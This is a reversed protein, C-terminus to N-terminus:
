SSQLIRNSGSTAQGENAAHLIFYLLLSCGSWVPPLCSHQHSLQVYLHCPLLNEGTCAVEPEIEYIGLLPFSTNTDALLVGETLVRRGVAQCRIEMIKSGSVDLTGSVRLGFLFLVFRRGEPRIQAGQHALPLQVPIKCKKARIQETKYWQGEGSPKNSMQVKKGDCTIKYKKEVDGNLDKM